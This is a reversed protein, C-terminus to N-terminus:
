ETAKAYVIPQPILLGGLNPQGLFSTAAPARVDLNRHALNEQQAERLWFREYCAPARDFVEQAQQWRGLRCLAYISNAFGAADEPWVDCLGLSATLALEYDGEALDLVSKRAVFLPHTRASPPTEDLLKWAEDRDCDTMAAVAELRKCFLPDQDTVDALSGLFDELLEMGPTALFTGLTEPNERVAWCIHYRAGLHNGWAAHEAAYRPQAALILRVTQAYASRLVARMRARERCSYAAFDRRLQDDKALTPPSLECVGATFNHRFLTRFRAPLMAIANFDLEHSPDAEYAARLPASYWLPLFRHADALTHQGSALWEWLPVLDADTLSRETFYRPTRLESELWCLAEVYSGAMSAFCAMQYAYFELPRGFDSVHSLMAMGEQPKGMFSFAVATTVAIEANS